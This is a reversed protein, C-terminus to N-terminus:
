FFVNEPCRMEATLVLLSRVSILPCKGERGDSSFWPKFALTHLASLYQPFKLFPFPLMNISLKIKKETNFNNKYWWMVIKMDQM